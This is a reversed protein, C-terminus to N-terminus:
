NKKSGWGLSKRNWPAEWYEGGDRSNGYKEVQAGRYRPLEMDM